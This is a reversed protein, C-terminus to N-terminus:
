LPRDVQRDAVRQRHADRQEALPAITEVVDGTRCSLAGVVVQAHRRPAEVPWKVCCPFPLTTGSRLPIM